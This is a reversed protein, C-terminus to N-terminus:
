NQNNDLAVTLENYGNGNNGKKFCNSHMAISRKQRVM